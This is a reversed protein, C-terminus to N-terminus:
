SRSPQDSQASKRLLAAIVGQAVTQIEKWNELNSRAFRIRAEIRDSVAIERECLIPGLSSPKSDCRLVQPRGPMSSDVFIQLDHYPSDKRYEYRMLGAIAPQPSGEFYYRDSTNFREDPTKRESRPEFTILVFDRIDGTLEVTGSIVALPDYPWPIQVDILQVAGLVPKKTRKLISQPIYFDSGQFAVHVLRNGPGQQEQSAFILEPHPIFYYALIGGSVTMFAALLVVVIWGVSRERVRQRHYDRHIQAM